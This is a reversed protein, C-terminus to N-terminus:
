ASAARPSRSRRRYTERIRVARWQGEVKRGMDQHTTTYTGAVTDATIEGEFVTYLLCGCVPDRYPDLRGTVGGHECRVFSVSIPIGHAALEPPGGPDPQRAVPETPVMIVDGYATDGGARFNFIITGSRGSQASWYEGRWEGRLQDIDGLVPIPTQPGACAALGALLPFSIPFRCGFARM